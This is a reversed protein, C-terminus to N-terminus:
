FFYVRLVCCILLLEIAIDAFTQLACFCQLDGELCCAGAHACSNLTPHPCFHVCSTHSCLAATVQIAAGFLALRHFYLGFCCCLLGLAHHFLLTPSGVATYFVVLYATDYVLYGYM